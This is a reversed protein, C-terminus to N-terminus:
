QFDAAVQKNDIRGILVYFQPADELIGRPFVVMFNTQVRQWDVTRMSGVYTTVPVGQVNFIIEDKLKLNLLEALRNEVSIFISDGEAVPKDTFVGKDLKESSILSDRYNVRYEHTLAWGSINETTDKAWEEVNKG